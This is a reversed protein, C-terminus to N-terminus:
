EFIVYYLRACIIAIPLAIIILDMVIDPKYLQRKARYMALLLGLLIGAGIIVGYWAINFGPIGLLNEVLYRNL